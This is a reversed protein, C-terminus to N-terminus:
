ARGGALVAFSRRFAERARTLVSEAAKLSLQLRDAIEQVSSGDIYKWELAAAYRPPLGDLVVHVLRRTEARELAAHQAAEGAALSALAAAIGPEDEVLGVAIPARRARQCFRAIEHRCFTCLWTFLASEGRYTAIKRIAASMTAQVVEEAADEDGALRTLAFRYLGPFYGDFFENFALEDGSLMRSVLEREGFGMAEGTQVRSLPAPRGIRRM